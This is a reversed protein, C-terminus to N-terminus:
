LGRRYDDHRPPTKSKEDTDLDPAWVKEAERWPGERAECRVRRGRNQLKWTRSADM